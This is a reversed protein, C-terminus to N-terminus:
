KDEKKKRRTKKEGNEKDDDLLMQPWQRSVMPLCPRAFNAICGTSTSIEQIKLWEKFRM